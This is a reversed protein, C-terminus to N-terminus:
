AIRMRWITPQSRDPQVMIKWMIEHVARKLFFNSFMFRNNQNVRYCKDPVTIMRLVFSGTIIMFTYQDEHLYM